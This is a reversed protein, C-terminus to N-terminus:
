IADEIQLYAEAPKYDHQLIDDSRPGVHLRYYDCKFSGIKCNDRFAPWIGTRDCDEIQDAVWLMDMLDGQIQVDSRRPTDRRFEAGVQGKDSQRRIIDIIVEDSVKEKPYLQRAAWVYLSVQPRMAWHEPDNSKSQRGETKTDLVQLIGHRNRVLADLKVILSHTTLNSHSQECNDCYYVHGQRQLQAFCGECFRPLEVERTQELEVITFDEVPYHGIYAALTAQAENEIPSAPPTEIKPVPLGGLTARHINLLEHMRSGFSLNDRDSAPEIGIVTAGPYQAVYREYYSLPCKRWMKAASHDIKM